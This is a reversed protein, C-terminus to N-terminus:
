KSSELAVAKFSRSKPNIRPLPFFTRCRLSQLYITQSFPIYILQTPVFEFFPSRIEVFSEDLLRESSLNSNRTSTVVEYLIGKELSLKSLWSLWVFQEVNVATISNSILRVKALFARHFTMARHEHFIKTGAIIIAPFLLHLIHDISECTSLHLLSSISTVKADLNMFSSLRESPLVIESKWPAVISSAM